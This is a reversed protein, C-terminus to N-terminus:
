DEGEADEVPLCLRVVKEFATLTLERTEANMRQLQQVIRMIRAMEEVSQQESM